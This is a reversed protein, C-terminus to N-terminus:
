IKTITLACFVVDSSKGYTSTESMDGGFYTPTGNWGDMMLHYSDGGAGVSLYGDIVLTKTYSESAQNISSGIIKVSYSTDALFLRAGKGTTLSFGSVHYNGIPLNITDSTEHTTTVSAGTISNYTTTNFTTFYVDWNLGGGPDSYLVEPDYASMARRYPSSTDVYRIDLLDVEAGSAGISENWVSVITWDSDGDSMLIYTEGVESFTISSTGGSITDSGNRSITATNSGQLWSIIVIKPGEDAENLTYDVANSTTDLLVLGDSVTGTPSATTYTVAEACVSNEVCKKIEKIADDLINPSETSGEPDTIDWDKLHTANYSM